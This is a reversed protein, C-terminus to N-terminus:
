FPLDDDFDDYKKKPLLKQTKEFGILSYSNYIAEENSWAKITRIKSTPKKFIDGKKVNEIHKKIFDICLLPENIIQSEAFIIKFSLCNMEFSITDTGTNVDNPKDIELVFLLNSETEFVQISNESFYIDDKLANVLLNSFVEYKDKINLIRKIRPKTFKSFQNILESLRYEKLYKESNLKELTHQYNELDDKFKKFNQNYEDLKVNYKNLSIPFDQNHKEKAEKYEKELFINRNLFYIGIGILLISILFPLAITKEINFGFYFILIGFGIMIYASTSSMYRDKNDEQFIKIPEDPRKPEVPVTPIKPKLNMIKPYIRSYYIQPYYSNDQNM